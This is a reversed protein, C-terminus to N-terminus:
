GRDIRGRRQEDDGRLRTALGHGVFTIKWLPPEGEQQRVLGRRELAGLALAAGNARLGSADALEPVSLEGADAMALLARRQTDTLGRDPRSSQIPAPTL